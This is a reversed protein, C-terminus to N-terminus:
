GSISPTEPVPGATSSCPVEKTTTPQPMAPPRMQYLSRWFDRDAALKSCERNLGLVVSNLHIFYDAAMLLTDALEGFDDESALKAGERIAEVFHETNPLMQHNYRGAARGTEIANAFWGIMAGEDTAMTPNRKLVKLWEKTWARADTTSHLKM